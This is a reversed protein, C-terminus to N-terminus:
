FMKEPHTDMHAQGLVNTQCSPRFGGLLLAKWESLPLNTKITTWSVSQCHRGLACSVLCSATSYWVRTSSSQRACLYLYLCVSVCCSSEKFSNDSLSTLTLTAAETVCHLFVCVDVGRLSSFCAHATISLTCYDTYLYNCTWFRREEADDYSVACLARQFSVTQNKWRCCYFGGRNGGYLINIM